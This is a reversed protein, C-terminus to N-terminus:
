IIKELEEDIKFKHQWGMAKLKGGNLSYRKDHGPRAKHFDLYRIMGYFSRGNAPLEGRKFLIDYIKEAIDYVSKEEGTIHYIEKPKAKYLLFLVADACDKAHVWHRSAVNQKDTGHLTISEGRKFNDIVKPIFKQPAQREGYVNMCRVTFIPLNFSHAFSYALLEAAGKTASYPNSPRRQDNEKFDVGIPAPGMVEDSSFLCTPTNPYHRKIWELLNATGLVNSKVFPICDVLSDDVYTEAAMHVIYDIKPFIHHLPPFRNDSLSDELDHQLYLIRKHDLGRNKRYLVIIDWNTQELIYEVFHSGIFRAGTILITKSM